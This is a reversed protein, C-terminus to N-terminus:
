STTQIYRISKGAPKSFIRGQEVQGAIQYRTSRLTGTKVVDGLEILESLWRRVTREKFNQGLLNLLESMSVPKPQERLENLVLRYKSSQTM